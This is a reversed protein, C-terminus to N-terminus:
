IDSKEQKWVEVSNQHVVGTESQKADRADLGKQQGGGREKQFTKKCILAKPSTWM